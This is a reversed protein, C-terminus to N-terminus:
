KPFNSFSVNVPLLLRTLPTMFTSEAAKCAVTVQQQNRTSYVHTGEELLGFFVGAVAYGRQM